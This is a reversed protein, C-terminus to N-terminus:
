SLTLSFKCRSVVFCLREGEGDLCYFVGLWDPGKIVTHALQKNFCRSARCATRRLFRM